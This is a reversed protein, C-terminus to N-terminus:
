RRPTARGIRRAVRRAASRMRAGNRTEATYATLVARAVLLATVAVIQGGVIVKNIDIAPRWAVKGDRLVFVGLPKASMGFGGGAGTNEQGDEAPGAGTGGGGGSGIKAVPVVIMEGLAIPSGFVKGVIANDVVGRLTDLVRADNMTTDTM